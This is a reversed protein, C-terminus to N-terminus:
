NIELHTCLTSLVYNVTWQFTAHILCSLCAPVKLLFIITKLQLYDDLKSQILTQGNIQVKFWVQICFLLDQKYSRFAIHILAEVQRARQQYNWFQKKTQFNLPERIAWNTFFRRAICSVQTQDRPQSSGSSFPFAVWELIRAQLIGQVTYDMPDCLTLYSQTVKVKVKVQSHM